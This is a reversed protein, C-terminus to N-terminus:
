VTNVAASFAPYFPHSTPHESVVCQIFNTSSLMFLNAHNDPTETNKTRASADTTKAASPAALGSAMPNKEQIATAVPIPMAM